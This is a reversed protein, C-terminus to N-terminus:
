TDRVSLIVTRTRQNSFLNSCVDGFNLTAPSARRNRREPIQERFSELEVLSRIACEIEDHYGGHLPRRNRYLRVRFKRKEVDYWMGRPLM